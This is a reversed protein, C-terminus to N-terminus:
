CPRRGDRGSMVLAHPRRRIASSREAPLRDRRGPWPALQSSAHPSASSLEAIRLPATRACTTASM